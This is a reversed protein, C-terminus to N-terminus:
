QRRRRARVQAADFLRPDISDGVPDLNLTPNSPVLAPLAQRTSYQSQISQLPPADSQLAPPSADLVLPSDFMEPDTLATRGDPTLTEADGGIAEIDGVPDTPARSADFAAIQEPSANAREAQLQSEKWRNLKGMTPAQKMLFQFAAEDTMFGNAAKMKRFQETEIVGAKMQELTTGKSGEDGFDGAPGAVGRVGDVDPIGAAIDEFGPIGALYEKIAGGGGGWVNKAEQIYGDVRDISAKASAEALAVGDIAKLFGAASPAVDKMLVEASTSSVGAEVMAQEREEEPAGVIAMVGPVSLELPNLYKMEEWFRQSSLATASLPEPEEGGDEERTWGSVYSNAFTSVAQVTQATPTTSAAQMLETTLTAGNMIAAVKSSALTQGSGIKKSLLTALGTHAAARKESDLTAQDLATSQNSLQAKADLKAYEVNIKDRAIGAELRESQSVGPARFGVVGDEAAIGTRAGEIGRRSTRARKGARYNSAAAILRPDINQSAM